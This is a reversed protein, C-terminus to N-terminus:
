CDALSSMAGLLTVTVNNPANVYVPCFPPRFVSRSMASGLLGKLCINFGELWLARALMYATM